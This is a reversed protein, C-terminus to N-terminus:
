HEVVSLATGGMPVPTARAGEAGVGMGVGFFFADSYM